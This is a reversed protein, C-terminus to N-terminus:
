SAGARPLRDLANRTVRVLDDAAEHLDEPNFSHAVADAGGVGMAARLASAQHVFRFDSLAKAQQVIEATDLIAGNVDGALLRTVALHLHWRIRTADSMFPGPARAIAKELADLRSARVEVDNQVDNRTRHLDIILGLRELGRSSHVSGAKPPVLTPDQLALIPRVEAACHLGNVVADPWRSIFHRAADVLTEHMGAALMVKCSDIVLVNRAYLRAKMLEDARRIREPNWEFESFAVPCRDVVRELLALGALASVPDGKLASIRYLNVQAELAHLLSAQGQAGSARVASAIEWRCLQEADGRKGLRILALALLNATGFVQDADQLNKRACEEIRALLQEVGETVRVDDALFEPKPLVATVSNVSPIPSDPGM